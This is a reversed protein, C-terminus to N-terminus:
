GKLLSAIVRVVEVLISRMGYHHRLPGSIHVAWVASRGELPGQPDRLSRQKQERLLHTRSLNQPPEPAQGVNIPDSISEM